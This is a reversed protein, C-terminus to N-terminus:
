RRIMRHSVVRTDSSTSPRSRSITMRISTTCSHPRAPYCRPCISPSPHCWVWQPGVFTQVNGPVPIGNQTVFVALALPQWRNPDNMTAGPLVVILPDNVSTYTPDAYNISENAGDGVGYALTSAGIRNGLATPSDGITSSVDPDYGLLNMRLRFAARSRAVNPSVAYRAALVRYAAFSIATERDAQPDMSASKATVLYGDATADYAAWADWMATSLHFLNRAHIPPRSFDVRIVDPIEEDWQRAVSQTTVPREGCYAVARGGVFRHPRVVSIRDAANIALATDCDVLRTVCDALPRRRAPM